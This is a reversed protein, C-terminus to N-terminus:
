CSVTLNGKFTDKHQEEDTGEYVMKIQLKWIDGLNTEMM